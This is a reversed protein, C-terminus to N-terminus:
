KEPREPKESSKVAQWQKEGYEKPKESWV